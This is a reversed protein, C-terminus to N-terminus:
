STLERYFKILNESSALINYNKRVNKIANEGMERRLDPNTLLEIIYSAFLSVGSTVFINKKNEYDLGEAARHTAVISKGRSMGEIIKMRIGSGSFLPVVMVSKDNIYLSSSEVEGSYFINPGQLFTTTKESANRGAIYFKAAPIATLVIPWVEKIFWKLGSINPLWDLAGIFFVKAEPIDSYEAIEERTFGPVSVLAPRKLGRAQFWSLDSASIPLIADFENIIQKEIKKIRRALIRFYIRKFMNKEEDALGSWILNEINHPRFVVPVSSNQRIVNLYHYMSLGEIQIIDFNNGTLKVLKNLYEPSWFRQLNYPRVSFLLNFLFKVPNIETNIKVLQFDASKKIRDPMEEISVPHKSTNMALVSVSVNGASLGRIMNLTAASGGDKPPWPSKNCLLLIRM